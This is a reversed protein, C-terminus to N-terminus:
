HALRYRINSSLSPLAIYFLAVWERPSLPILTWAPGSHVKMSTNSITLRVALASSADSGVFGVTGVTRVTGVLGVFGVFGVLGICGVIAFLAVFGVSGVCGVSGV